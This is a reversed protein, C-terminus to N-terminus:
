HAKVGATIQLFNFSSSYIRSKINTFPVSSVLELLIFSFPFSSTSLILKEKKCSEVRSVTEVCNIGRSVVVSFMTRQCITMNVWEVTLTTNSFSFNVM